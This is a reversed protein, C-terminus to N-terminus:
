NPFHLGLATALFVALQGRTVPTDPCFSGAGCGGTLGSAAMAEVFRFFPHTTPVDNPFTATAPAPSVQLHYSIEFGYIGTSGGADRSVTALLHYSFGLNTVTHNLTSVVTSNGGSFVPFTFNAVAFLNGATDARRLIVVPTASSTDFYNVKIATIVSGSPLHVPFGVTAVPQGVIPEVRQCLTAQYTHTAETSGADCAGLSLISNAAGWEPVDPQPAEDAAVAAGPLAFTISVLLAAIAAGDALSKRM